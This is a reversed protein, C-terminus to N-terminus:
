RGIGLNLLPAIEHEIAGFLPAAVVTSSGSKRPKQVTVVMTVKPNDAPFIGAFTVNYDDELYAQAKADFVDATGTKGAVPIGPVMSEKLSSEDVVYRLMSLVTEATKDSLRRQPAPPEDGEVLYPTIFMGKNAFISYNAALELSTTSMSQGITISAHDQPFWPTDRLTGARSFISPVNLGTGFGLHKLWAYLEEDSFNQSLHIMGSNSSFRLIDWLNLWDDHQVVDQFTKDGVRLFMPTELYRDLSWFKGELASAVVFPKMVSGPEFTYLFAKNSIISRDHVYRQRNPDFEPYSAAALIRGTGVELIVVSGNLADYTTITKKLQNQAVSQMRPDITLTITEGAQLRSDLTNELGELGYSGDEQVKGSFGIIHAAIRNMPYRRHEADGEAFITGDRSQIVGRPPVDVPVHPWNPSTFQSNFFSYCALGLPIVMMILLLARRQVKIDKEPEKEPPPKPKGVRSKSSVM